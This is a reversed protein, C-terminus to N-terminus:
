LKKQWNCIIGRQFFTFSSNNTVLERHSDWFVERTEQDKLLVHLIKFGEKIKALKENSLEM